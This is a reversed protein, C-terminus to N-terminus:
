SSKWFYRTTGSLPTSGGVEENRIFQEVLQAVGASSDRSIDCFSVIIKDAIM